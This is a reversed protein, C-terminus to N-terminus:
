KKLRDDEFGHQLLDGFTVFHADMKRLGTLLQLYHEQYIEENLTGDANAYESPHLMIVCFDGESFKRDCAFMIERVPVIEQTSSNYTPVSYDFVHGDGASNVRFGEEQLALLTGESYNNNPPIFTYIEKDTLSALVKKGQVIAARAEEFSSQEFEFFDSSEGRAYKERGHDWGHLAIEMNCRKAYLFHVIKQDEEIGKPIVGAVIPMGNDIAGQIIARSVDSWMFAQVDDLRLVVRKEKESDYEEVKKTCFFSEAKDVSSVNKTKITRYSAEISWFICICVCLLIAVSFINKRFDQYKEM